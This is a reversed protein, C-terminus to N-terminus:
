IRRAYSARRPPKPRWALFIEAAILNPAWCLWAVVPYASEFAIGSALSVPMYIRLMVAAFSLAYNRMMWRRHNVFDCRRIHYYATAGTALWLVALLGFGLRAMTGGTAHQALVLGSVGGLSVGALLYIRGLWRHLRPHGDRISPWLQLPGLLLAVPASFVHVYVATKEAQFVQQLAPGATAGLPLLAYVGVAYLAIGWSLFLVLGRLSTAM